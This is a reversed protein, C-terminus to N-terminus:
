IGIRVFGTITAVVAREGNAPRYARGVPVPKGTARRIEEYVEQRHVPLTKPATIGLRAKPMEGRCFRMETNKVIVPGPEAKLLRGVLDAMAPDDCVASALAARDEETLQIFVTQENGLVIAQDVMRALVLM